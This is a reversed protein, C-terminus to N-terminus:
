RAINMTLTFQGDRAPDPELTLRGNWAVGDPETFRWASTTGAPARGGDAKTWRGQALAGDVIKQVEAAKLDTRVSVQIDWRDRTGETRLITAQGLDSLDVDRLVRDALAARAYGSDPRWDYEMHLAVQQARGQGLMRSVVHLAGDIGSSLGASTIITGNDVFRRDGVVRTKPAVTRLEDIAGYFTTASLGDLLGAKALIFAGNCVSLVHKAGASQGKLWAQTAASDIPGQVGGGPVVVVDAKPADAFSFEPTVTMGMATKLPAKKEAVTYVEFRAQGFVEYPGTYDIIQVGEFILIAARPRSDPLREGPRKEVLRMGCDPCHGPKDSVRADCPLDCPPCVYQKAQGEAPAAPVASMMSAVLVLASFLRKM